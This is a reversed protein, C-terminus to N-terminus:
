LRTGGRMPGHTNAVNFRHTKSAYKTFQHKSGKSSMKFRKAM